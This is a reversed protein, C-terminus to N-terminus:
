YPRGYVDPPRGQARAICELRYDNSDPVKVGQHHCPRALNLLRALAHRDTTNMDGNVRRSPPATITIWGYATGRGHTVSWTRDSRRQLAAKIRKCADQVPIYELTTM